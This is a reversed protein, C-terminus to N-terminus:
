TVKPNKKGFKRAQVKLTADLESSIFYVKRGLRYFPLVGSKRLNQVTLKACGLYEAASKDGYLRIPDPTIQNPQQDRKIFRAEVESAILNVLDPVSVPSLIVNQM